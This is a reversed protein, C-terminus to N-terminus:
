GTQLLTVNGLATSARGAQFRVAASLGAAGAAHLLRRGAATLQMRALGVAGHATRVGAHAITIAAGHAHPLALLSLTGHCGGGRGCELAVALRSGAVAAGDFAAGLPAPAASAPLCAGTGLMVVAPQPGGRAILRPACASSSPIAYEGTSFSASTTAGAPGDVASTVCRLHAGRDAASLTYILQFSRPVGGVGSVEYATLAGSPALWDARGVAAPFRRSWLETRAFPQGGGALLITGPFPSAVASGDLMDRAEALNTLQQSAVTVTGAATVRQLEISITRAQAFASVSPVVSGGAASTWPASACRVQQATWWDGREAYAQGAASGAGGLMCVASSCHQTAPGIPWSPQPPQEHITSPASTVTSTAGDAGTATQECSLQQGDESRAPMYTSAGAGSIAAGDLLWQTVVTASSWSVGGCSARAESFVIGPSVTLSGSATPPPPLVEAPHTAPPEPEVTWKLRVTATGARDAAELTVTTAAKATTPTGVITWESESEGVRELKLGAPLEEEMLRELGTGTITVPTIAQGVTSTQDPPKAITPAEEVAPSATQGGPAAERAGAVGTQALSALTLLALLFAGLCCTRRAGAPRSTSHEAPSV